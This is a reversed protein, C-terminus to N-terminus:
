ATWRTQCGCLKDCACVGNGCYCARMRSRSPLLSVALAHVCKGIAALVNAMEPGPLHHIAKFCASIYLYQCLSAHPSRCLCVLLCVCTFLCLYVSVHSLSPAMFFLLVSTSHHVCVCLVINPISLYLDAFDRQSQNTRKKNVRSSLQLLRLM